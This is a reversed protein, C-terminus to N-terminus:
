LSGKVGMAGSRKQDIGLGSRTHTERGQGQTRAFFHLPRRRHDLLAGLWTQADPFEQWIFFGFLTAWILSSYSFPAVVSAPAAQFSRIICLHGLAGAVGSAVLLLWGKADPSTWHWPLMLSTVIAGAAATFLLSTLPLDFRLKRTTIQYLANTVSAALLFLAGTHFASTSGEWPRVIILAGAFGVVIGIWRRIGVNEALIFISFLTVLIPAFFMISTATALPVERVGANFLGTTTMLLTSRLSQIGPSRSRWLETINRGCALVAVISAFFFRGWTVQVLSYEELAYKMIADLVIFCFITALMWLIGATRNERLASAPTTM